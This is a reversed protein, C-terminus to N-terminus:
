RAGAGGPAGDDDVARLVFSFETGRGVESQVEISAGHADIIGKAIALGLGIGRADGPRKQWFRDFLHALHEPEIGAGTDSVRLRVGHDAREATLAM